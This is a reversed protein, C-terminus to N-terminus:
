VSFTMKDPSPLLKQQLVKDTVPKGQFIAGEIPHLQNLANTLYTNEYNIEINFEKVEDVNCSEEITEAKKPLPKEVRGEITYQFEGVNEKVFIVNCEYTEMEVPLFFVVVEATGDPNNFKVTSKGDEEGKLFFVKYLL